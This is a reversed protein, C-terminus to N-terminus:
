ILLVVTSRQGLTNNPAFFEEGSLAHFFPFHMYYFSRNVARISEALLAFFKVFPRLLTDPVFSCIGEGRLISLALSLISFLLGARFSIPTILENALQASATPILTLDASFFFRVTDFPNAALFTEPLFPIREAEVASLGNAPESGIQIEALFAAAADLAVDSEVSTEAFLGLIEATTFREQRPHATDLRAFGDQVVRDYFVADFEAGLRTKAANLYSEAGKQLRDRTEPADLPLFVTTEARSDACSHVAYRGSDAFFRGWLAFFGGAVFFFTALLLTISTLRPRKM